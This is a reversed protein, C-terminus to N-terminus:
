TWFADVERQDDSFAWFDEIRGDRMHMVHVVRAELVKGDREARTHVLGVTHEDNAVVDHLDLTFTGNSLDTLKTFFELVGDPGHYSGSIPSDGAIHWSTEPDLLDMTTTIDGTSFAEYAKRAIQAHPHEHETM